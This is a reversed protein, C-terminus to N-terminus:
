RRRRIARMQLAILGIVAIAVAISVAILQSQTLGLDALTPEKKPPDDVVLAVDEKVTVAPLGAVRRKIDARREVLRTRNSQQRSEVLSDYLREAERFRGDKAYLEALLWFLRNDDPHWLLLQQVIAIADRSPEAFLPFLEEEAAPTKAEAERRHIRLWDRYYTRELKALWKRQEATTGALDGPPTLEMQIEHWNAAEAWEGRIAFLHAFNAVIRYDPVRERALPALTTRAEDYLRARMQDAARGAIAAPTTAPQRLRLLTTERDPNKRNPNPDGINALQGFFITAFQGSNDANYSLEEATGDAKIAFPCKEFPSYLGAVAPMAMAIVIMLAFSLKVETKARTM